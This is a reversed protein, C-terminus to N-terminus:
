PISYSERLLRSFDELIKGHVGLIPVRLFIQGVTCGELSLFTTSNSRFFNQTIRYPDINKQLFIKATAFTKTVVTYIELGITSNQNKQRM